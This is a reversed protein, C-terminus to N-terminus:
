QETGQRTETRGLLALHEVAPAVEVGVVGLQTVADAQDGLLVHEVALQRQTPGQLVRGTEAERGIHGRAAPVVPDLLHQVPEAHRVPRHRGDVPQGAPLALAGVDGEFQQGLRRQEQEVLRNRAQVGAEGAHEHTQQAIQGVAALGHHDDGM